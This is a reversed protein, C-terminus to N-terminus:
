DGCILFDSISAEASRILETQSASLLLRMRYGSLYFAARLLPSEPAPDTESEGGTGPAATTEGEETEAPLTGIDDEASLDLTLFPLKKGLLYLVDQGSAAEATALPVAVSLTVADGLADALATLYTYAADLTDEGLPLGRLLIETGGMSLFERLVAADTAAAAYLVADDTKQPLSVQWVGILYPVVEALAEMSKAADSAAGDAVELDLYSVVPSRYLMGDASNLPLALAAPPESGLTRTSSGLRFAYAHVSPALRDPAPADTTEESTDGETLRRYADDDLCSNLINGTVLAAILVVAAVIGVIAGPPLRKRARYRRRRYRM